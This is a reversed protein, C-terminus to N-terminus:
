EETYESHKNRFALPAMGVAKKFYKGFSSQDCFNFEYAIRQVSTGSIILSNKIRAIVAKTIVDKATKNAKKRCIENLYKPTICLKDAYFAVNHQTKCHESLL